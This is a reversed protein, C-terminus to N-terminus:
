KGNHLSVCGCSVGFPWGLRLDELMHAVILGCALRIALVWLTRSVSPFARPYLYCLLWVCLLGAPPVSDKTTSTENIAQQETDM